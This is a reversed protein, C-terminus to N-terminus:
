SFPANAIMVGLPKSPVSRVLIGGSRDLIQRYSTAYVTLRDWRAEAALLEAFDFSLTFRVTRGQDDLEQWGVARNGYLGLDARLDAEVRSERVIRVDIGHRVQDDIWGAIPEMPLLEGDPWLGDAVVVIREIQLGHSGAQYNARMSRRGPEDQWYAPTRVHAVSRYRYLGRSLLLKEYTTRWSETSQFVIKGRALSTLEQSVERARDFALERYIPDLTTTLDRVALGVARLLGLGEADHAVALPLAVLEQEEAAFQAYRRVVLATWLVAVILLASYVALAKPTGLWALAIAVSGASLALLRPYNAWRWTGTKM